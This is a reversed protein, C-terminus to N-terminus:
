GIHVPIHNSVRKEPQCVLAISPYENRCLRNSVIALGIPLLTTDRILQTPYEFQGTDSFDVLKGNHYISRIIIETIANDIRAIGPVIGLIISGKVSINRVGCRQVLRDYIIWTVQPWQSIGAILKAMFHHYISCQRGKPTHM